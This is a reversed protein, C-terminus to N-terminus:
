GWVQIINFENTALKGEADCEAYFLTVSDGNALKNAIAEANRRATDKNEYMTIKDNEKTIHEVGYKIM